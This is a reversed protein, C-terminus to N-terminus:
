LVHQGSTGQKTCAIIAEQTGVVAFMFPNTELYFVVNCMGNIILAQKPQKVNQIAEPAEPEQLLLGMRAFKLLLFIQNRCGLHIKAFFWCM